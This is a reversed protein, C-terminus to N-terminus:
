LYGQLRLRQIDDHVAGISVHLSTETSETSASHLWGRPASLVDGPGLTVDLYPKAGIEGLTFSRPHYLESMTKVVPPWLLWRKRGALQIILVSGIDWHIDFTQQRSPTQFVTAFVNLHTRAWIDNCLSGLWPNFRQLQSFVFSAGNHDQLFQELESRSRFESADKKEHDHVIFLTGSYVKPDNFVQAMEIYPALTNANAQLGEQVGPRAQWLDHEAILFQEAAYEAVPDDM